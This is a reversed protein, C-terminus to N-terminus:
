KREHKRHTNESIRNRKIKVSNWNVITINNICKRRNKALIYANKVRKKLIIAILKKTIWRKEWKRYKKARNDELNVWIRM